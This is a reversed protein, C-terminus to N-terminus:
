IALGVPIKATLHELSVIPPALATSSHLPQLNMVLLHPAARAIVLLCIQNSKTLVTMSHLVALAYALCRGLVIGVVDAM